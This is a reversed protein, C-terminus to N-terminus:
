HILFREVDEVYEWMLQPQQLFRCSQLPSCTTRLSSGARVARKVLGGTTTLDNRWMSLTEELFLSESLAAHSDACRVLTLQKDTTASFDAVVTAKFPLMVNIAGFFFFSKEFCFFIFGESTFRRAIFLWLSSGVPINGIRSSWRRQVVKKLRAFNRQWNNCTVALQQVQLLSSSSRTSVVTEMNSEGKM